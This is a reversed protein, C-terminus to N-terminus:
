AGLRGKTMTLLGVVSLILVVTMLILISQYSSGRLAEDPVLLLLSNAANYSAHLIICLLVSGTRNILWTYWFAHTAISVLTVGTVLLTQQLGIAGSAVDPHTALLPLHWFAWVVGLVFTAIVPSYYQQLTPLGFGRWGPEENGGGVLALFILTPLYATLRGALITLDLSHGLLLYLLSVLTILLIPFGFVFLYWGPHLRWKFLGIIWGKLSRGQANLVIM